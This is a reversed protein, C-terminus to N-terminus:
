CAGSFADHLIYDYLEAPVHSEGDAGEAEQHVSRRAQVTLLHAHSDSTRM